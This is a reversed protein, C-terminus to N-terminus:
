IDVDSGSDALTLDHDLTLDLDEIDSDASDVADVERAVEELDGPAAPPEKAQRQQALRDIDEVKFKWDAGDRYGHLEQSERMRSVDGPGVGLKEAATETDYYKQAM